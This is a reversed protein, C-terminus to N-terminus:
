TSGGLNIKPLQGDSFSRRRANLGILNIRHCTVSVSPKSTPNLMDVRSEYKTTYILCPRLACQTSACKYVNACVCVCVCVYIYIYIYIYICVQLQM